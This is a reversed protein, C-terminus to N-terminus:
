LRQQQGCCCVMESWLMSIHSETGRLDTCHAREAQRWKVVAGGGYFKLVLGGVICQPRVGRGGVGERNAQVASCESNRERKKNKM